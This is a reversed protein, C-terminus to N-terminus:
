SSSPVVSRHQPSKMWTRARWLREFLRTTKKALRWSNCHSLHGKYSNYQGIETETPEEGDKMHEIAAGMFRKLRKKTKKSLLAFGHFVRFGLIPVGRSDVPYIQWTHKLRLGLEALKSEVRKKVRRLYSKSRAWAYGNDLYRIYRSARMGTGGDKIVHDLDDLVYNALPHSTVNGLPLEKGNHYGYLITETLWLVDKDAFKRRFKRMVVDATISQFCHHVDFEFCYQTGERDRKMYEKAKAVADHQGRGKISAYTQSILRKNIEPEVTLKWVWQFMQDRMSQFSVHRPKGREIKDYEVYPGPKYTHHIIDYQVGKFVSVLDKEMELIEPHSERGSRVKLFAKAITEMSSLKPDLGKVKRVM